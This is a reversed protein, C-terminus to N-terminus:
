IFSLDDNMSVDEGKAFGKKTKVVYSAARFPDHEFMLIWNEAAAKPLIRKKEQLTVLPHNDYGMIFPLPIHSATPILDACYLLTKQSDSIKPLQMAQTHGYVVVMEIGPFLEKQGNLEILKGAEKIPMYNEPMFSARDKETPNMGWHWHEGQVYYNANPFTLQLQGDANYYTAGGIHDFHLHTIIVDTIDTTKVGAKDLGKTLENASHDIHYIAAAKESLKNGVGCDVLIVQKDNKILLNRMALQIRNQEDAPNTKEWLNKPVVGFMAGGDLRVYGNEISLLEYNGIKL